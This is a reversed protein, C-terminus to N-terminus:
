IYIKTELIHSEYTVLMQAIKEIFLSIYFTLKSTKYLCNELKMFCESPFVKTTGEDNTACIQSNWESTCNTNCGNTELQAGNLCVLALTIGTSHMFIVDILFLVVVLEFWIM